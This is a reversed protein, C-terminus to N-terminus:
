EAAPAPPSDLLSRLNYKTFRTESAVHASDANAVYFDLNDPAFLVSHLNSTMCVPRSMLGIARTANFGGFGNKVRKVLETYRDGASLLVTDAVPEALQPHSEGTWIVEFISPTAKVGAARHSKADSVVYYYECTRPTRRMFDLAEDITSTKEMVERVLQAMPKGDWNGEGRGGMEGICLQKENMATVSGTFGAYSINVWANGKEPRSVIVAANEELGAGRMYDLIRGHYLKGDATAKGLLAFGSCHFLEPFFNALRVEEPQLGAAAAMADMEALHRPDIFPSTRRVAEEIEGFFWRGKEFSSGVGVGYLVRDVLQRVEKKMLTGHQRGMEEPTGSLFLVRTGDQDELRGAGETAILHKAGKVPPLTPINSGLNDTMVRAFREIQCLAAREERDNSDKVPQWATDPLAGGTVPSSVEIEVATKEDQYRISSPWDSGDPVTATVSAKKVPLGLAEAAPSPTLVYDASGASASERREMRVLVPLMALKSPSVPLNLANFKVPKVSDPRTSFQPVTNDARLLFDKKPVYIWVKDRDQCFILTREGLEASLLLRDPPQIQAHVKADKLFGAAGTATRVKFDVTVSRTEAANAAPQIFSVIGGLAEMVEATAPEPAAAPPEKAWAPSFVSFTLLLAASRCPLRFPLAPRM